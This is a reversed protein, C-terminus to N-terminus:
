PKDPKLEIDHSQTQSHVEVDLGSTDPKGYRSPIKLAPSTNGFPTRTHSVVSVQAKGMAVGRISYQGESGIVSYVLKGDSGIFTVSGSALPRGDFRVTGSVDAKPGGGCGAAALVLMAVVLSMVGRM